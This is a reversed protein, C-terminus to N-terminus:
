FAELHPRLQLFSNLFRLARGKPAVQLSGALDLGWIKCFLFNLGLSKVLLFPNTAAQLYTKLLM